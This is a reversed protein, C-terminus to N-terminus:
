TGGFIRHPIARLSTYWCASRPPACITGTRKSCSTGPMKAVIDPILLELNEKFLIKMGDFTEESVHPLSMLVLEKEPITLRERRGLIRRLCLGRSDEEWVLELVTDELLRDDKETKPTSTVNPLWGKSVKQGTLWELGYTSFYHMMQHLRFQAEDIEMVQIPFDPYMPEAKVEPVLEKVQQYFEQMSSSAALMGIDQPRLTFGLAHLNENVTLAQLLTEDTIRDPDGKACTVMHMTSLLLKHYVIRHCVDAHSKRGMRLSANPIVISWLLVDDPFVVCFRRGM